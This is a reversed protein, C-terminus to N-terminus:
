RVTCLDFFRAAESMAERRAELREEADDVVGWKDAQFQEDIIAAEWLAAVNVHGKILALSGVLTGTISTVTHLASLQMDTCVSVEVTLNRLSQAPQAISAIGQTVELPALLERAAWDLLPQWSKIQLAVLTPEQERYCLLDHAGFAAIEDVVAQRQTTIRDIATAAYRMMPMSAPDVEEGQAQWEEAVAHAVGHTPLALGRKGPTKIPLGDLLVVFGDTPEGGVTADKYFRKM